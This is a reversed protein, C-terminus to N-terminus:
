LSSFTYAKPRRSDEIVSPSVPMNMSSTILGRSAKNAKCTELGHNIQDIINDYQDRTNQGYAKFLKDVEGASNKLYERLLFGCLVEIQIRAGTSGQDSFKTKSPIPPPPKFPGSM